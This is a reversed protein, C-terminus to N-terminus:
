GKLFFRGAASLDVEVASSRFIARFLLAPFRESTGHHKAKLMASDEGEVWGRCTSAQSPFLLEPTGLFREVGRSDIDHPMLGGSVFQAVVRGVIAMHQELTTETM